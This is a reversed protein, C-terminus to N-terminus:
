QFQFNIKIQQSVGDFGSTTCHIRVSGLPPIYQFICGGLGLLNGLPPAKAGWPRLSQGYEVLVRSTNPFGEARWIERPGRSKGRTQGRSIEPTQPFREPRPFDKPSRLRIERTKTSCPYLGVVQHRGVLNSKAHWFRQINM